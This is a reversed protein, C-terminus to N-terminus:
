GVAKVVPKGIDDNSPLDALWRQIFTADTISLAHDGDADSAADVFASQNPLEALKRQIYTADIITVSGDGDVDGLITLIEDIGTYIIDADATSFKTFVDNYEDVSIAEIKMMDVDNLEAVKGDVVTAIMISFEDGNCVMVEYDGDDLSALYEDSFSLVVSGASKTYQARPGGAVDSTKRLLEGNWFVLEEKDFDGNLHIATGNEIIEIDRLDVFCYNSLDYSYDINYLKEPSQYGCTPCEGYVSVVLLYAVDAGNTPVEVRNIKARIVLDDHPILRTATNCHACYSWHGDDNYKWEWKHEVVEFRAWVEGTLAGNRTPTAVLKYSGIDTIGERDVDIEAPEGDAGDVVQYCTLMYDRGEVYEVGTESTVTVAPPTIAEGTYYVSDASLAMTVEVDESSVMFGNEYFEDLDCDVIEIGNEECEKMVADYEDASIATKRDLDFAGLAVMRGNRVTVTMATFEDGNCVMVEHAGDGVSALFEDTFELIVSGKKKNYTKSVKICKKNWYVKEIKKFKGKFHISKGNSLKAYKGSLYRQMQWRSKFKLRVVRTTKKQHCDTCEEAEKILAVGTTKGDITVSDTVNLAEAASEKNEHTCEAPLPETFTKKNKVNEETYVVEIHKHESEGSTQTAPDYGATYIDVDIVDNEKVGLAMGSDDVKLEGPQLIHVVSRLKSRGDKTVYGIGGEQLEDVPILTAQGMWAEFSMPLSLNADEKLTPWMEVFKYGGDVDASFADWEIDVVMAKGTTSDVFGVLTVQVNQPTPMQLSRNAGGEDVDASAQIMGIPIMSLCLCLTLLIALLRKKM